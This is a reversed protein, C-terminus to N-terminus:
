QSRGLELVRDHPQTEAAKADVPAGARWPRLAVALAAVILLYLGVGLVVSVPGVQWRFFALSAVALPLADILCAAWALPKRAWAPPGDIEWRSLDM